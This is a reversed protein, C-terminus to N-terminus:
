VGLAGLTWATHSPLPPECALGTSRRLEKILEAEKQQSLQKLGLPSKMTQPSNANTGVLPGQSSRM